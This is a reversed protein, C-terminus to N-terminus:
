LNTTGLDSEKIRDEDKVQEKWEKIKAKSPIGKKNRIYRKFDESRYHDLLILFILLFVFIISLTYFNIVVFFLLLIAVIYIWTTIKKFTNFLCYFEYEIINLIKSVL